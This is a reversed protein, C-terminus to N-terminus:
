SASALLAEKSSEDMIWHTLSGRKVRGTTATATLIGDKPYHLELPAQSPIEPTYILGALDGSRVNNGPEHMALLVGNNPAYIMGGQTGTIWRSELTGSWQEDLPLVKIHDLLRYIARESHWLMNSQLHSCGGMESGFYTVGHEVAVWESFPGDLVPQGWSLPSNIYELTDLAAMDKARDGTLSVYAAPYHNACSGATHSDFCYDCLPFIVDSLYRAIRVTPSDTATPSFSRNLNGGDLPSSRTGALVAPLNVAPMVILRGSLRELDIEALLRTLAVPGEYEDGHVGGLLLVTPGSGNNLVSIPIQIIDLGIDAHEM